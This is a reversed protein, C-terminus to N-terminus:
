RGRRRLRVIAIQEVLLVERGGPQAFAAAANQAVEPPVVADKWNEALYDLLAQPTEAHNVFDFEGAQELRFLGDRVAEDLAAQAQAYEVFNDTEELRGVFLRESRALVFFEPRSGGPHIDILLGDTKLLGHLTHLAHVMGEAQM